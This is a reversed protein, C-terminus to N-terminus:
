SASAPPATSFPLVFDVWAARYEHEPRGSRAFTQVITARVSEVSTPAVVPAPACCHSLCTCCQSRTPQESSNAHAGHAAHADPGAASEVATAAGHMACAALAGPETMLILFWAAMLTAFIRFPTRPRAM